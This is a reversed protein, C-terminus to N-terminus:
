EKILRLANELLCVVTMPGVGGPVPTIFAAKDKVSAFEVDPRPEGVDIVVVGEKVLEGTVLNHNGTASIIVDADQLGTGQQVKQLLEKKGIMEPMCGVNHLYYYLPKGLLDSKGLIIIKKNKLPALARVFDNNQADVVADAVDGFYSALIEIVAQCTAPLVRGQEQWVNQEIASLTVPHLGDVDKELAIGSVLQKWWEAYAKKTESGQEAGLSLAWISQTPKQIIIGTISENKNLTDLMLLVKEVPDKLSFQHLEYKIGVREAAESKLRSYLRSGADEDFFIAAIHPQVELSEVKQQLQREKESATTIGDFVIM